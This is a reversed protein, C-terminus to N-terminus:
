GKEAVFAHEIGHERSSVTIWGREPFPRTVFEGDIRMGLKQEWNQQFIGLMPPLFQNVRERTTVTPWGALSVSITGEATLEVIPQDHLTVIITDDERDIFAKTNNGIVRENRNAFLHVLEHYTTGLLNAM